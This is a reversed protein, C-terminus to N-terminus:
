MTEKIICIDQNTYISHKLSKSIDRFLKVEESLGLLKRKVPAESAFYYSWTVGKEPEEFYDKGMETDFEGRCGIWMLYPLSQLVLRCESEKVQLSTEKFGLSKLTGSLWRALLSHYENEVDNTDILDTVFYTTESKM